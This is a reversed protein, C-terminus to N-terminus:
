GYPRSDTAREGFANEMAVKNEATESTESQEKSNKYEKWKYVVNDVIWVTIKDSTGKSEVGNENSFHFITIM